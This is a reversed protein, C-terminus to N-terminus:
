VSTQLRDPPQVGLHRFPKLAWSSHASTTPHHCLWMHFLNSQSPAISLLLLSGPGLRVFLFKECKTSNRLFTTTIEGGGSANSLKYSNYHLDLCPISYPNSVKEPDRDGKLVWLIRNIIEPILWGLGRNELGVSWSARTPMLTAKSLESEGASKMCLTAEFKGRARQEAEPFRLHRPRWTKVGYCVNM